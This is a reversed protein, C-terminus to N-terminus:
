TTTAPTPMETKESSNNYVIAYATKCKTLRKTSAAFPTTAIQSKSSNDKSNKGIRKKRCGHLRKTLIVPSFTKNNDKNKNIRKNKCSRLRKTFTIFSFPESSDLAYTADNNSPASKVIKTQFRKNNTILM